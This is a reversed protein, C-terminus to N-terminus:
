WSLFHHLSILQLSFSQFNAWNIMQKRKGIQGMRFPQPSGDPGAGGFNWRGFNGRYLGDDRPNFLTKLVGVISPHFRWSCVTGSMAATVTSPGNNLNNSNDQSIIEGEGAVMSQFALDNEMCRLKEMEPGARLDVRLDERMAMEKYSLPEFVREEENSASSSANYQPNILDVPRVPHCKLRDVATEFDSLVADGWPITQHPPLLGKIIVFGHNQLISTANKVNVDTLVTAPISRKSHSDISNERNREAVSPSVTLADAVRREYQLYTEKESLSFDHKNGLFSSQENINSPTGVIADKDMWPCTWANIMCSRKQIRIVQVHSTSLTATASETDWIAESYQAIHKNALKSHGHGDNDNTDLHSMAVLWLVGGPLLGQRILSSSSSPPAEGDTAELICPDEIIVAADCMFGESFDVAVKMGRGAIREAMMTTMSMENGANSDNISTSSIVCCSGIAVAREKLSVGTSKMLSIFHQTIALAIADAASEFAATSNYTNPHLAEQQNSNENGDGDDDDSDSDSGFADWCDDNADEKDASM